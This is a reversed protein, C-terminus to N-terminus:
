LQMEKEFLGKEPTVVADRAHTAWPNLPFKLAMPYRFGDQLVLKEDKQLQMVRTRADESLERTWIGHGIEGSGTSGLVKTGCNEFVLENVDSAKQQAGFLLIGQSRLQAAVHEFLRAIEDHNDRGAYQNLEDLMLVYVQPQAAHLRRDTKLYEIVSAVVFRQASVPLGDIDIVVPGFSRTRAFLPPNGTTADNLLISSSSLINRLRRVAAEITMPSHSRTRLYHQDNTVADNVWDVLGDFNRVKQTDLTFASMSNLDRTSINQFVDFMLGMLLEQSRDEGSFLYRWTGWEIVDQLCWAYQRTGEPLGSRLAGSVPYSYLEAGGFPMAYGEWYAKGWATEYDQFAKANFEKNPYRIWMLDSGKANFIIPVFYLPDGRKTSDEAFLMLHKIVNLLFSTKTGTGAKGTVNIHGGFEGLMYRTDLCAKGAISVGGNLLVGVPLAANAKQMEPYGYGQGAEAEGALFVETDERLPTLIGPEIGIVRCHAYTTGTRETGSGRPWLRGKGADGDRERMDAEVSRAGSLRNVREIVAYVTMSDVGLNNPPLPQRAYVIQGSEPVAARDAWFYFESQTAEVGNATSVLGLRVPEQSKPDSGNHSVALLPSQEDISM